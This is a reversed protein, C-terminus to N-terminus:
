ETRLGTPRMLRWLAPMSLATVLLIVAAAAGTLGAISGWDLVMPRTVIRVLVAGLGAGAVAALLLGLVVPVAVQYLVSWILTTPRTGFAVLVALVRQRERLQELTTVLLSAGILLLTVLVGIFLGRRVNVFQNSEMQSKLVYARARLGFQAVSNRVHEYVDSQNEDVKLFATVRSGAPMSAPAAAPTAFVGGFLDGAPDPRAKVTHAGVPIRWQPLLQQGPNPFATDPGDKDSYAFRSDVIFVDGDACQDVDAMERLDACDGVRVSIGTDPMVSEATVSAARIGPTQGLVAAVQERPRDRLEVQVQARDPDQGTSESFDQDVSTFLTQLAITGAVAVAVGNVLRASTASNLQLRRIALQWSVASGGIRHVVTEVLWPLLAAVGILLLATGGVVQYTDFTSSVETVSGFLPYLALLGVGPLLLRWWLRRRVAVTHRVVSLPEVVVRRMALLTVGVAAVPVALVVLVTLATDPRIDGAFVSIEWFTFREVLPRGCLLIAVGTALGLLTGVLVEGAAIRRVARSDAGVLRLAALRRDRREGAFRVATGLFVMVPLLLVVCAIVVLLMLVPHIPDNALRGGFRDIRWGDEETLQDSGLYFAYEMPGSLGPDAITGAIPYDLRPRLLAGDPSALLRGLAPSVVMTGPRPLETLGPPVPARDGEPQLIRGRIPHGRFETEANGVLVTDDRPEPLEITSWDSRAAARDERAELIAPIAAAVLLVAVGLGVGVATMTLRAWGDRGGAITLRAGLALDRAWRRM